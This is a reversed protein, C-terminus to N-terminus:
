QPQLQGSAVMEALPNDEIDLPFDVRSRRRVSEYGGFIIETAQLAHEARLDSPRGADLCAVVDDIAPRIWDGGREYTYHEIGGDFTSVELSLAGLDVDLRGDAGEVRWDADFLDAGYGTSAMGQVGNEYEWHALMHNENHTGFILQEERYDLGALIWRAPTEDNFYNCMDIAHTGNDYFNGWTFGVRTIEGIVGDDLLRKAERFLEAYRRQHNFTLQVGHEVAVEAMERAEGWTLAMPKECHIAAVGGHRACGIVLEAHAVPPVCISVIDPAADDLMEEYSAYVNEEPIDFERAFATANERVLDACAVLSCEEIERYAEAHRYAMAYGSASPNDPDAGTGIFGIRHASVCSFPDNM